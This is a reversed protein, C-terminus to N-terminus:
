LSLGFLHLVMKRAHVADVEFTAIGVARIDPTPMQEGPGGEPLNDSLAIISYTGIQATGAGENSMDVTTPNGNSFDLKEDPYKVNAAKRPLIHWPVHISDANDELTLYGDYENLTLATANDGERGSNMYNGPLLDGFIEMVISANRDEGPLLQLEGPFNPYVKVAGSERDDEYRFTPKIRYQITENSYNKVFLTKFILNQKEDVDVFGFSLAPQLTEFDWAATRSTLSRDVKVNGSGIRSIPTLMDDTELVNTEASNMLRAKLEAPTLTPYAQLLLAAAGAVIPTAASTGGFPTRETGSGALASVSGGPGGIEPKLLNTIENVPGRSSSSATRSPLVLSNDPDLTGVSSEAISAKISNSSALSIMYAPIDVPDGADVSVFPADDTVMGIIAAIAGTKGKNSAKLTFTCNGRDVLVMKGDLSGAPFELCGEGNEGDGNGYQFPGSIGEPELPASWSQHVTQYDEGDANLLVPTEPPILTQAVSLSTFAAGPTNTVYPRNGGNGAACVTLVDLASASNVAESLDDDFPQGYRRGLSMNIIDVDDSTDGDGDPDVAYEM